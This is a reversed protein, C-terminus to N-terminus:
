SKCTLELIIEKSRTKTRCLESPHSFLTTIHRYHKDPKISIGSKKLRNELFADNV